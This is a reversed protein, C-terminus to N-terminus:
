VETRKLRRVAAFVVVHCLREVMSNQLQSDLKVTTKIFSNLVLKFCSVDKKKKKVM